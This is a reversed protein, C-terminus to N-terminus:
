LMIFLFTFIDFGSPNLTYFDFMGLLSHVNRPKSVGGVSVSDTGTIALIQYEFRLKLTSRKVRAKFCLLVANFVFVWELRM